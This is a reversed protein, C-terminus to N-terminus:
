DHAIAVIPHDRIAPFKSVLNQLNLSIQPAGVRLDVGGIKLPFIFPIGIQVLSEDIHNKAFVLHNSHESHM